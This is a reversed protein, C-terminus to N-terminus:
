FDDEKRNDNKVFIKKLVKYPIKIVYSICNIVCSICYFVKKFLFAVFPFTIPAFILFLVVIFGLIFWRINNKFFNIGNILFDFINNKLNEFWKKFDDVEKEFQSDWFVGESDVVGGSNVYANYIKGNLSYEIELVKCQSLLAEYFEILNYSAGFFTTSYVHLNRKSVDFIVSWQYNKGSKDKFLNEKNDLMNYDNLKELMSSANDIRNIKINNNLYVGNYIDNKNINVINNESKSYSYNKEFNDFFVNFDKFNIGNTELLRQHKLINGNEQNLEGNDNCRRLDLYHLLDIGQSTSYSSFTMDNMRAYFEEKNYSFSINIIEDFEKSCSFNYYWLEDFSLAKDNIVPNMFSSGVSCIEELVKKTISSGKEDVIYSFMKKDTIFLYSDYNTEVYVNGNMDVNRFTAIFPCKSNFERFSKDSLNYYQFGNFTYQRVKTDNNDLGSLVCRIKTIGLTDNTIVEEFYMSDVDTVNKIYKPLEVDNNNITIYVKNIFFDEEAIVDSYKEEYPNYIYIYLSVFGYANYYEYMGVCSYDYYDVDNTKKYDNIDLNMVKFDEEISTNDRILNENNNYSYDAKTKTICVCFLFVILAIFCFSFIFIIIKRKM